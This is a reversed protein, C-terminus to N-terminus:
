FIIIWCAKENTMAGMGDKCSKSTMLGVGVKRLVITMVGMGDKRHVFCDRLLVFCLM